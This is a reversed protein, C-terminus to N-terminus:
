GGQCNRSSATRSRSTSCGRRDSCYPVIRMSKWVGKSHRRLLLLSVCSCNVTTMGAVCRMPVDPSAGSIASGLRFVGHVGVDGLGRERLGDIRQTHMGIEGGVASCPGAGAVAVRAVDVAQAIVPVLGYEHWRGGRKRVIHGPDHLERLDEPTDLVAAPCRNEGVQRQRVDIQNSNAQGLGM